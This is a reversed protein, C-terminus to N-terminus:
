YSTLRVRLTSGDPGFRLGFFTEDGNLLRTRKWKGDVYSGEEVTVLQANQKPDGLKPRFVVNANFGVVIFENPSIQGFVVRGNVNPNGTGNDGSYSGLVPGFRAQAEFRDFAVVVNALGEEEVAARVNGTQRLALLEPLAPGLQRFNATIEHLDRAAANEGAQPPRIGFTSIGLGGYEGLVYFMHRAHTATGGTEPVFLANDPRNYRECLTRFAATNTDYVDAGVVDINPTLAKWMPLLSSVAGGSPHSEGPRIFGAQERPWVNVYTPLPYAKKGAAAVQNIYRAVYYAAFTEPADPGFVEKWTGPKKKLSALAVAPVPGAFAQNAVPSYDRDSGLSGAENEVQVMIVTQRDGDIQRLHQMLAAFARSDAEATAEFLPSLVRIERGASDLMRPFKAPNEKVWAPAYDMKGNKWTGFWLLAVRLGNDRAGEVISDVNTFDFQGPQPEMAEWYVPAMVTNCHLEKLVPWTAALTEPWGGSNGVQAGLIFFPKDDVMLVHKGNQETVRPMGAGFTSATLLAACLTATPLKSIM